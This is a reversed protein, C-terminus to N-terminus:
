AYSRSSSPPPLSLSRATGAPGPDAKSHDLRTMLEGYDHEIHWRSEGSSGSREPQHRAAPRVALLRHTRGPRTAVSGSALLRAPRRRRATASRRPREQRSPPDTHRLFVGPCLAQPKTAEPVPQHCDTVGTCSYPKDPASRSPSTKSAAPRIVIDRRPIGEVGAYTVAAPEAHGPSPLPRTSTTDVIYPIRQRSCASRDDLKKMLAPDTGLLDSVVCASRAGAGVRVQGAPLFPLQDLLQQQFREGGILVVDHGHDQVTVGRRSRRSSRRWALLQGVVVRVLEATGRGPTAGIAHRPCRDRIAGVPAREGGYCHIGSPLAQAPLAANSPRPWPRGCTSRDVVQV